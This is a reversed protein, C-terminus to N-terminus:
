RCKDMQGELVHDSEGRQGGSESSGSAGVMVFVQRSAEKKVEDELGLKSSVM